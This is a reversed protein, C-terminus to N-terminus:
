LWARVGLFAARGQTAYGAATQYQEDWANEIRGFLEIDDSLRWNARLDLVAYGDLRVLNAADDYSASVVRLDTGLAFGDGAQWDLSLTAAHRPRRPLIKGFNASSASRDESDIYSYAGHARWNDGIRWDAEIEVGQGRTRGTNDYTGFPRNECIGTTVGFCSAFLIQDRTVRHFLIAQVDFDQGDLAIGADVSRSKEPRLGSNGYDSHLQFLSPAKFGEGYSATLHFGSGISAAADAGFSWQGGFDRHEDRRLGVAFHLPDDDYDLQVYAGGAATRRPADFLTEFRTWEGEGGFSLGFESDLRTHGRLEARRSTGDTTYGPQSGLAPDYNERESDSQSLSLSLGLGNAFYDLGTAASLQRIRQYEGTDALVFDPAPFGDIDTRGRAYRTSAFLSLGRALEVEGQAVLEAQRFGDDEIGGAAASFGDSRAYGGRLSLSALGSELGVGGTAYLGDNSGYELSADAGETFGTTLLLVGGIADSGWITSNSSRQLEVKSLNGMALSGFDFGGSPSAPDAMRVGDLMVLLQEAEAGRVRIGTFSGQPGNRSATVGPARQLLRTIDAGQVQAVDGQDFISVAIGNWKLYEPSGTALVTILDDRLQDAIVIREGAGDEPAGEQAAVPFPVLCFGLLFFGLSRLNEEVFLANAGNM